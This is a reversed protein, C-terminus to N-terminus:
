PTAEVFTPFGDDRRVVTIGFRSLTDLSDQSAENGLHFASLVNDKAARIRGATVGSSAPSSTAREIWGDIQDRLTPGGPRTAFITSLQLRRNTRHWDSALLADIARCLEPVAFGANLAKAILRAQAPELDTRKPRRKEVWYAWVAVRADGDQEEQEEQPGEEIHTDSTDGGRTSETDGGQPVPTAVGAAPSLLAYHNPVHAGGVSRRTVELLGIGELRDIFRDLTRKSVGAYDAVRTRTASFGADRGREENAIESLAHYVAVATRREPGTFQARLVKM